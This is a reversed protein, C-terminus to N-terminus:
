PKIRVTLENIKNIVEKSISHHDFMGGDYKINIVNTTFAPLKDKFEIQYIPINILNSILKEFLLKRTTFFGNFNGADTFDKTVQNNYDAPTFFSHNHDSTIISNLFETSVIIMKPKQPVLQFWSILNFKIADLGGNFVCLNYYDMKLRQSILYPYTEEVPKSLDVGVNDGVFLIYKHLDVDKLEKCRHGSTNFYESPDHGLLGNCFQM